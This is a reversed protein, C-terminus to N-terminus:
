ASADLRIPRSGCGATLSQAAMQESARHTEAGHSFVDLEDPDVDCRMRCRVPDCPLDRLCERPILGWAIQDTIPILDVASRDRMSQSSHADAVFRDGCTRGPLVAEGFSQNSRDSALAEVMHDGQALYVEAPNQLSIGAIVVIQSRVPRQVFVRWERSRNLPDTADPRMSNETSQMVLVRSDLNETGCARNLNFRFRLLM